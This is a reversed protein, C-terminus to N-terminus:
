FVVGVKEYRQLRKEWFPTLEGLQQVQVKMEAVLIFSGESRQSVADLIFEIRISLDKFLREAHQLDGSKGRVANVVYQLSLLKHVDEKDAHCMYNECYLCGYQTQCNPQIPVEEHTKVPHNLDECHGVVTASGPRSGRERVVEAAKRVAEWYTGFEQEQREPTTESYYMANTRESHNLTDAVLSPSVRLEHLVLSKFKRVSSAPINKADSPLYMGRLRRFFASSFNENLQSFEGSYVGEKRMRFFLYKCDKGDLMWQRLKLYAKLLQLGKRGIPYRTTKGRARFKVATLEKKISSQEVELAEAFEFQVFESPNAGTILIFLCAYASAAMSALRMRQEHRLSANAEDMTGQTEALSRRIIDLKSVRAGSAMYEEPTSVRGESLNLCHLKKGQSYPTITAGCIPFVVAELGVFKVRCPFPEGDMVFSRFRSAIDMCVNIYNKVDLEKPPEPSKRNASIVSVGRTIYHADHKFQLGILLKFARQRGFCTIPKLKGQALIQHLPFGSFGKYAARASKVDDFADRHGNSDCWDLVFKFSKFEGLVSKDRLGGTNFYDAITRVLMRRVRVFSDIAVPIGDKCAKVGIYRSAYAFAGIDIPSKIGRPDLKLRLREPYLFDQGLQSLSVVDTERVVMLGFDSM